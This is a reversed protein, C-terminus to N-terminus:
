QNLYHFTSQSLFNTCVMAARDMVATDRRALVRTHDPPTQARQTTMVLIQQVQRANM